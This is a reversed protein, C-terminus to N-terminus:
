NLKSDAGFVHKQLYFGAKSALLGNELGIKVKQFIKM